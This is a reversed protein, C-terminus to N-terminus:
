QALQAVATKTTPGLDAPSCLAANLGLAQCSLAAFRSCKTMANSLTGRACFYPGGAVIGAGMIHQSHALHFQHAMFGGSSIGSVSVQGPDVKIGAAVQELAPAGAVPPVLGMGCVLTAAVALVRLKEQKQM